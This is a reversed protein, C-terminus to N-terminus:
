LNEIIQEAASISIGRIEALQEPSAKRIAAVSGFKKLLAEKRRPSMGPVEDLVSERMRKKLLLQHYGNAFRHAEDRLRQLLKLAGRDHPILIPLDRGPVFVEERQKALGILPVDHLGLKQLEAMAMALQGKGGDVVILDPLGAVKSASEKKRPRGDERDLVRKEIRRARELVDENSDEADDEAALERLIRAYRRGVVEAMSAFDNQGEVTKIRYRRYAQNDPLGGSFRVMSAVSYTASINSIDFCEMVMPPEAMGLEMQLERVDDLASKKAEDSTVGRGSRAFKRTPELIKEMSVMVDRLKAAKEFDMAEAAETMEAKIEKLITRNRGELVKMAAEARERYEEPTVRGICPASCNRIVDAHCHRYEAEGPNMPRCTKLGFRRNLWTVVERLAANHVYPGFYRAGDEKRMRTMRFMPFKATPDIRVMPFRKDDRFSVNYRPRVEKILKAELLLAESENRVTHFEFDWISNILARTKLDAKRQRSPLFYSTLRKRLDKAKGVYIVQGLRDKM